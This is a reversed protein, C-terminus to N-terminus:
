TEEGTFPDTVTASVAVPIGNLDGKLTVTDTFKGFTAVKYSGTYQV